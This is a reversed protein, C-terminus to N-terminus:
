NSASAHSCNGHRRLGVMFMCVHSAAKLINAEGKEEKEEEYVLFYHDCYFTITSLPFNRECFLPSAFLINGDKNFENEFFPFGYM